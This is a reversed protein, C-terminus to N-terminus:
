HKQLRPVARSSSRADEKFFRTRYKYMSSQVLVNYNIVAAAERGATASNGANWHPHYQYNRRIADWNTEGKEIMKQQPRTTETKECKRKAQNRSPKEWHKKVQRIGFTCLFAFRTSSLFHQLIRGKESDYSDISVLVLGGFTLCNSLQTLGM